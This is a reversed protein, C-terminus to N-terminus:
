RFAGRRNEIVIEAADNAITGSRGLWSRVLFLSRRALLVFILLGDRRELRCVLAVFGRGYIHSIITGIAFLLSRFWRCLIIYM